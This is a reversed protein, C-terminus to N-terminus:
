DSLKVKLAVLTCDGGTAKVCVDLIRHALGPLCVIGLALVVLGLSLRFAATLRCVPCEPHHCNHGAGFFILLLFAVLCICVARRLWFCKNM